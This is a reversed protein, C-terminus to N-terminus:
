NSAQAIAAERAERHAVLELFGLFRQFLKESEKVPFDDRSKLEEFGKGTLQISRDRTLLQIMMTSIVFRSPARRTNARFVQRASPTLETLRGHILTELNSKKRRQVSVHTESSDFDFPADVIGLTPPLFLCDGPDPNLVNYIEPRFLRGSNCASIIVRRVGTDHLAEQLGGVSIYSRNDSPEKGAQIKLGHGNTGHTELVLIEIRRTPFCDNYEYARRIIDSWSASEFYAFGLREYFLRNDSVSLDPSFVVGVGRGVESLREFRDRAPWESDIREVAEQRSEIVSSATYSPVALSLALLLPALRSQSSARYGSDSTSM